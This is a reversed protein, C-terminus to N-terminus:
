TQAEPAGLIFFSFSFVFLLLFRLYVSSLVCVCVCFPSCFFCFCFLFCFFFRRLLCSFAFSRLEAKADSYSFPRPILVGTLQM